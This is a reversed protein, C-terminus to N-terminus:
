RGAGGIFPDLWPTGAWYWQSPKLNEVHGDANKMPPDYGYALHTDEDTVILKGDVPSVALDVVEGGAPAQVEGLKKPTGIVSGIQVRHNAADTLLMSGNSDFTIGDPADIDEAGSGPHGSGVTAYPQVDFSSTLDSVQPGDEASTTTEAASCGAALALIAALALATAKM